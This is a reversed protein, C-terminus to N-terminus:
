VVSRTWRLVWKTEVNGVRTKTDDMVAVTNLDGTQYPWWHSLASGLALGLLSGTEVSFAPGKRGTSESVTGELQGIEASRPGFGLGAM